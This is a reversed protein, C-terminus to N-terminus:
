GQVQSSLRADPVPSVIENDIVYEQGLTIVRTGPELGEVWFGDNTQSLLQVQRFQVKDEDDLIKLGLDGNDALTLWSPSIRYASTQALEISASATLGARIGEGANDLRIDTLFTRTEDDASPAIYTIVGTVTAGTVLQVTAKMGLKVDEIDTESLQGTFFMPDRDVLTICTGGMAIVDGPEAIPDQVIGSAQAKIKTHSLELEAAEMQARAADLDFRIQRLRADTAFGQKILKENAAFDAEMQSLRARASAVSAERAGPAIECVLQGEEIFDGRNVLRRQLVGSTEARVPIIAQAKTKGRLMVTRSRDQPTLAAYSVKFLDTSTAEEREAIPKTDNASAGQGGIEIEGYYMWVGIVVTILIAVLHSGKITFTM